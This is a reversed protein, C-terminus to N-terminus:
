RFIYQHRWLAVYCHCSLVMYLYNTNMPLIYIYYINIMCFHLYILEFSMHSTMASLSIKSMNATFARIAPKIQVGKYQFVVSGPIKNLNKATPTRTRQFYIMGGSLAGECGVGRIMDSAKLM